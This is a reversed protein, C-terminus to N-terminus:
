RPTIRQPDCFTVCCPLYKQLGQAPAGSHGTVTGRARCHFPSLFMLSIVIDMNVLWFALGVPIDCLCVGLARAPRREVVAKVIASMSPAPAKPPAPTIAKVDPPAASALVQAALGQAAFGQAASGQAALGQAASGHAAAFGQAALGHAAALGQAASGQAASGHAAAAQPAAM